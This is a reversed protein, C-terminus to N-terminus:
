LESLTKRADDAGDFDKSISLAKEMQEAAKTKENNKYYALGLHYYIVANKENKKISDLFENIASAYVGKKYYVWGLTDMVNPDDPLKEKAKQAFALAINLDKEQQALLYALNNSAPAFDPNIKLAERYHKESLDFQKKMDYITGLLMHPGAQNPNKALLAEYQAVSKDAEDNMLYIKALAYYSKLSNPDKEIADKFAAEAEAKKNQAMYLGGKLNYVIAMSGPSEKVIDIQKNCKEVATEIDNKETHLVIINTFVDMLRPNIALAKEFNEMARDYQKQFRNLLGLRYFGVPNEPELTILYEFASQAEKAKKQYM